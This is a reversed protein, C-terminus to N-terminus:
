AARVESLFGDILQHLGGSHQSLSDAASQVQGAAAGTSDAAQNVGAITSSVERTGRAADQVNRAIERTAAGQQEIASAITTAIENIRGIIGGIGQISGATQNIVGQIEAVQAAIEETARGTQNALSKVEGAVVAFGKGAEGARAAEITANLALLNTQSAIQNILQVVQGIKLASQTLSTVQQDARKADDVAQATITSSTAVQRGIESISLSLEEAASAVAQVNASAQESASAVVLARRRSEEAVERMGGATRSMDGIAGSVQGFKATVEQNFRRILSDIAAVQRERAASHAAQEAALREARELGDKFVLVARAMGGLEDRRDSGPVTVAHDHDALATMTRTLQQVPQGIARGVAVAAALVLLVSLAIGGLILWNAQDLVAQETANAQNLIDKSAQDLVGVAQDLSVFRLALDNFLMVAVVPDVEIMEDAEALPKVIAAVQQRVAAVKDAVESLGSGALRGLEAQAAAVAARSKARVQGIKAQEVSAIQWTVARMLESETTKLSRGLTDISDNFVRAQEGREIAGRVQQNTLVFLVGIVVLMACGFAPSVLTKVVIPWDSFRRM